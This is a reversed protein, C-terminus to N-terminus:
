APNRNYGPLRKNLQPNHSSHKPQLGFHTNQSAVQKVGHTDHSSAATFATFGSPIVPMNNWVTDRLRPAGLTVRPPIVDDNSINKGRGKKQLEAVSFRSLKHGKLM